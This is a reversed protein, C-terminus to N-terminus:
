QRTGTFTFNRSQGSTTEMEIVLKQNNNTLSGTGSVEDGFYNQPPFFIEMDTLVEANLTTAAVGLDLKIDLKNNSKGTVTATVDNLSISSGITAEKYDGLFVGIFPSDTKDKSRSQFMLFALPFFLTFQKM